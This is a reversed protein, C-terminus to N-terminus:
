LFRVNSDGTEQRRLAYASRGARVLHGVYDGLDTQRLCSEGVLAGAAGAEALRKIDEPSKIGSESVVACHKPLSHMLELTTELSVEFTRLNRNNIGLLHAGASIAKEIEQRDHCEVLTELSLKRALKLLKKLTKEELVAAILLVADAGYVRSEVLQYETFLFDKRLMPLPCSQRVSQFDGLGGQFFDEETLVSIAGAGGREYGNLIDSLSLVWDIRGLSPSARKVETILEFQGKGLPWPRLKPASHELRKWLLSLPVEAEVEILKKRKAALIKELVDM